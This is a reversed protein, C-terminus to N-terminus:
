ATVVALALAKVVAPWIRVVPMGPSDGSRRTQREPAPMVPAPLAAFQAAASTSDCFATATM